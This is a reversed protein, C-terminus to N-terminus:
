QTTIFSRTNTGSSTPETSPKTSSESPETSPKLKPRKSKGTIKLVVIGNCYDIKREGTAQVRLLVESLKAEGVKAVLKQFMGPEYDIICHKPPMLFERWTIYM